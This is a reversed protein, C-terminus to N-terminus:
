FLMETNKLSLMLFHFSDHLGVNLGLEAETGEGYFLLLRCWGYLVTTLTPPFIQSPGGHHIGSLHDSDYCTSSPGM